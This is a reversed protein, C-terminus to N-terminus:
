EDAADSTYLLCAKQPKTFSARIDVKGRKVMQSLRERITPETLRLEDPIRFQLDLFRSNVSKLEVVVAGDDNSAKGSGFATMSAIM